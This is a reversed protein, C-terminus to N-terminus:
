AVCRSAIIEAMRLIQVHCDKVHQRDENGREKEAAAQQKWFEVKQVTLANAQRVQGSLRGDAKHRMHKEHACEARLASVVPALASFEEVMPVMSHVMHVMDITNQDIRVMTEWDPMAEDSSGDPMVEDLAGSPETGGQSLNEDAIARSNIANRAMVHIPATSVSNDEIESIMSRDGAFYRTCLEVVGTRYAEGIKGGLLLTIRQLGEMNVGVQMPGRCNVYKGKSVDWKQFRTDALFRDIERKFEKDTKVKENWYTRAAAAKDQAKNELAHELYDYVSFIDQGDQKVMRVKM